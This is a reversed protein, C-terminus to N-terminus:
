RNTGGKAQRNATAAPKSQAPKSQAAKAPTVEALAGPSDQNVWQAVEAELEVEDGKVWPGQTEGDRDARYAHQVVYRPM